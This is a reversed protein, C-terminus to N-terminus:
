FLTSFIKLYLNFNELYDENNGKNLIFDDDIITKKNDTENLIYRLLSEINYNGKLNMMIIRFQIGFLLRSFINEKYFLDLQAIYDTKVKRLFNQIEEYKKNKQNLNYTVDPYQIKMIILIPLNGYLELYVLSPIFRVAVNNM